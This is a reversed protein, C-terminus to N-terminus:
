FVLFGITSFSPVYDRRIHFNQLSDSKEIRSNENKLKTFIFILIRGDFFQTCRFGWVQFLERARILFYFYFYNGRESDGGSERGRWCSSWVLWWWWEFGLLWLFVAVVVAVAMLPSIVGDLLLLLGVFGLFSSSCISCAPSRGPVWM